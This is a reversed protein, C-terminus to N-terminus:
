SRLVQGLYRREYEQIRSKYHTVTQSSLVSRTDDKLEGDLQNALRKAIDLMLELVFIRKNLQSLRMFFTVGKFQTEAMADLDFTGPNLANAMSFIVQGQGNSQEHRHFINMDGYRLGFALIAELLEAGSFENDGKAMVNIALVEEPLEKPKPESVVPAKKESSVEDEEEHATYEAHSAFFDGQNHAPRKQNMSHPVIEDELEDDEDFENSQYEKELFPEEESWSGEETNELFGSETKLEPTEDEPVRVAERKTMGEMLIDLPESFRPPIKKPESGSDSHASSTQNNVVRAGGNPLEAQYSRDEEEEEDYEEAQAKRDIKVKVQTRRNHQFRRIGDVLVGIFILAGVFMLLERIGFDM